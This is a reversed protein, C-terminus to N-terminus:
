RQVSANTDCAAACQLPLRPEFERGEAQFASARDVSSSGCFYVTDSDARGALPRIPSRSRSKCSRGARRKKRTPLSPNSGGFAYALLNVTQGMQGSQYSGKNQGEGALFESREDKGSSNARKVRSRRTGSRRDRKPSAKTRGGSTTTFLGREKPVGLRLITRRKLCTQGDFEKEAAAM